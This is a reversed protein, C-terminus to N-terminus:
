RRKDVKKSGEADNNENNSARRGAKWEEYSMGDFREDKHISGNAESRRRVDVGCRCNRILYAPASPDGPFWLKFGDIEWPENMGVWTGDLIRHAIRTREDMIAVWGRVLDDGSKKEADDFADTRAGNEVSNAATDISADTSSTNRRWLWEIIRRIIQDVPFPLDATMMIATRLLSKQWLTEKSEATRKAKRSNGAMKPAQGPLRIMSPNEGLMKRVLAETLLGLPLRRGIEQEARYLGYNYNEAYIRISADIVDLWTNRTAKRSKEAFDDLLLLLDEDELLDNIRRRRLEAQTIEGNRLQKLWKQRNKEHKQLLKDLPESIANAARRYRASALKHLRFIEKDTQARGADALKANKKEPMM